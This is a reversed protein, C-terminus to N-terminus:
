KGEKTSEDLESEWAMRGWPQGAGCLEDYEWREAGLLVYKSRM